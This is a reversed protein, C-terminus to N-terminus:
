LFQNGCKPCERADESVGCGCVSCLFDAGTGDRADGSGLAWGPVRSGRGGKKGPGKAGSRSRGAGEGDDDEDPPRGKGAGDGASADRGKLMRGAGPGRAGDSAGGRGHGRVDKDSDEGEFAEGCGPCSTMSESVVAGCETCTIIEDYGHDDGTGANKGKGGRGGKDGKKGEGGKGKRGGPGGAVMLDRGKGSDGDDTAAGEDRKSCHPCIKQRPDKPEGCYSCKHKEEPYRMGCKPCFSTGEEAVEGCAPCLRGSGSGSYAMMKRRQARALVSLVFLSITFLFLFVLGVMMCMEDTEDSDSSGSRAKTVTLTEERDATDAENGETDRCTFYFTYEGRDFDVERSHTRGEKVSTEDGAYVYYTFEEGEGFIHVAVGNDEPELGEHNVYTVSFVVDKGASTRNRSVLPDRLEVVPDADGTTNNGGANAGAEGDARTAPSTYMPGAGGDDGHGGDGGTPTTAMMAVMLLALTLAAAAVAPFRTIVPAHAM